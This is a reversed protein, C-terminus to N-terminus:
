VSPRPYSGIGILIISIVGTENKRNIFRGMNQCDVICAGSGNESQLTLSKDQFVIDRNMGGTYVGDAVLVVDNDVAAEIAQEISPFDSPVHITSAACLLPFAALLITALIRFGSRKIM